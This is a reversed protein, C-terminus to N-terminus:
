RRRRDGGGGRDLGRGSGLVPFIAPGLDGLGQAVHDALALAVGEDVSRDGARGLEAGGVVHELVQQDVDLHAGAHHGRPDLLRDRRHLDENVAHQQVQVDHLHGKIGLRDLAPTPHLVVPDPLGVALHEQVGLVPDLGLQAAVLCGLERLELGREHLTHEIWRAHLLRQASIELLQGPDGVELHDADVLVRVRALQPQEPSGVRARMLPEHPPPKRDAGPLRPLRHRGPDVTVGGSDHEVFAPQMQEPRGLM